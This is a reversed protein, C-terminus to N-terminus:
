PTKLPTTSLENEENTDEQKIPANTLLMDRLTKPIFGSDAKKQQAQDYNTIDANLQNQALTKAELEEISPGELLCYARESPSMSALNTHKLRADRNLHKWAERCEAAGCTTQQPHRVPSYCIVCFHYKM